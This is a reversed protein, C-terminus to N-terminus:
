SKTRFAKRNYVIPEKEKNLFGQRSILIDGRVSSLFLGKRGNKAGALLSRDYGTLLV